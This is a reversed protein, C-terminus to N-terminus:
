FGVRSDGNLTCFKCNPTEKGNDWYLGLIYGIIEIRGMIMTEMKKEMKGIYGGLNPQHFFDQVM